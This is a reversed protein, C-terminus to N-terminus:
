LWVSAGVLGVLFALCPQRTQRVAPTFSDHRIWSASIPSRLVPRLGTEKLKTMLSRLSDQQGEAERQPHQIGCGEPWQNTKRKQKISRQAPANERQQAEHYDSRPRGFIKQKRKRIAQDNKSSPQLAASQPNPGYQCADTYQSGYRQTRLCIASASNNKFRPYADLNGSKAFQYLFGKRMRDSQADDVPKNITPSGSPPSTQKDDLTSPDATRVCILPDEVVVSCVV